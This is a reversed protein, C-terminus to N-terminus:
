NGNIIDEDSEDASGGASGSMSANDADRNEEESEEEEEAEEEEEGDGSNNGSGKGDELMLDDGPESSDSDYDSDFGEESNYKSLSSEAGLMKGQKHIVIHLENLDSPLMTLGQSETLFSRAQEVTHATKATIGNINLLTSLRASDHHSYLV